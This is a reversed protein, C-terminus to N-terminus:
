ILLAAPLAALELAGAFPLSFVLLVLWQRPPRLRAMRDIPAHDQSPQEPSSDM